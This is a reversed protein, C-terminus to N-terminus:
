AKGQQRLPAAAQSLDSTHSTVIAEADHSVVPYIIVQLKNEALLCM